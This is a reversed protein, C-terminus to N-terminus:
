TLRAALMAIDVVAAAALLLGARRINKWTLADFGAATMLLFAFLLPSRYRFELQMMGYFGANLALLLAAALPLLRPSRWLGPLAALWCPLLLWWGAQAVVVKAVRRLPQEAYQRAYSEYGLSPLFFRAMRVLAHGAFRAPNERIQRWALRGYERHREIEPAAGSAFEHEAQASYEHDIYYPAEPRSVRYLTHWSGTSLVASGLIRYNRALYPAVLILALLAAGAVRGATVARRWVLLPLLLLFFPLYTGRTLIAAGAALGFLAMGGPRRQEALRLGHYSLLMCFVFLTEAYCRLALNIGDFFFLYVLGAALGRRGGLLWALLVANGLHLVTQLLKVMPVSPVVALWGSLVVPYLPFRFARWGEYEMTGTLRLADALGLYSHEDGRVATLDTLPLVVLLLVAFGAYLWRFYRDAFDM